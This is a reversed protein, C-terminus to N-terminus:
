RGFLQKMDWSVCRFYVFFLVANAFFARVIVPAFGRYFGLPGGERMIESVVDRLGNPYTNVSATQFRSKIMDQPMSVVWNFVGAMGGAFLTKLPSLGEDSSLKDKLLNYTLFYAGSGPVDRYLTLLSGKYISRMGGEKFLKKACDIPGNYLKVQSNTQVQLLCKIREGPAMLIVTFIGSLLGASLINTYTTALFAYLMYQPLIWFIGSLFIELVENKLIKRACDTANTYVPSLGNSTATSTQLRVKITDFPFGSAVLCTGGFGGALLDKFLSQQGTM